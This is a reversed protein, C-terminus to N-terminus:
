ILRGRERRFQERAAEIQQEKTHPAPRPNPGNGPQQGRAQQQLDNVIARAKNRWALRTEIGADPGPDLAKVTAPWDKIEADIQESVLTSLADYRESKPELSQLKSQLQEALQKYQGQEKLRTQEATNAVEEQERFRKRLNRAENKALALERQLDDITPTSQEV